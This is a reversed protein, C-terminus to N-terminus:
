PCPREKSSASGILTRIQTWCVAKLGFHGARGPHAFDSASSARHGVVDHRVLGQLGPLLTRNQLSDQVAVIDFLYVHQEEVQMLPIGM